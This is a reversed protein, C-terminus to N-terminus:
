GIKKEVKQNWKKMKMSIHIIDHQSFMKAKHVEERCSGCLAQGLFSISSSANVKGKM